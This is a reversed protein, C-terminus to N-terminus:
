KKQAVMIKKPPILSPRLGSAAVKETVNSELKVQQVKTRVDVFESRLEMVEDNLKALEHVKKDAHHASSIMIVALISVFLFFRWNKVSDDSILFKGKLLDLIGKKM